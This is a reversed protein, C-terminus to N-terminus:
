IILRKRTNQKHCQLSLTLVSWYFQLVRSLSKSPKHFLVNEDKNDKRTGECTFHCHQLAEAWHDPHSHLCWFGLDLHLQDRSHLNRSAPGLFGPPRTAKLTPRGLFFHLADLHVTHFASNLRHQFKGWLHRVTTERISSQVTICAVTCNSPTNELSTVNRLIRDFKVPIKKEEKCHHIRHFFFQTLQKNCSDRVCLEAQTAWNSVPM